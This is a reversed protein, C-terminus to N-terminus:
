NKRDGPCHVVARNKGSRKAEYLASDAIALLSEVNRGSCKFSTIGVSFSASIKHGHWTLDSQKLEELIRTLIEQGQDLRETMLIGAFEDGGYRAIVDTERFRSKMINAAQTLVYDGARHGMSDNVMKFDDLDLMFVLFDRGYRKALSVERELRTTLYRRNYLGTLPDTISLIELEEMLRKMDTIDRGIILYGPQGWKDKLPTSELLFARNAITVEQEPKDLSFKPGFIQPSHVDKIKVADPIHHVVAANFFLIEGEPSTVMVLDPSVDLLTQSLALKVLHSHGLDRFGWATLLVLLLSAIPNPDPMGYTIPIVYYVFSASMFLAVGLLFWRLSRRLRPNVQTKYFGYFIMLALLALLYTYLVAAVYMSGPKTLLWGVQTKEIGYQILHTEWIMGIFLLEPIALLHIWKPSYMPLFVALEFLTLVGLTGLTSYVKLYFFATDRSLATRYMLNALNGIGLFLLITIAFAIFRTARETLFLWLAYGLSVAVALIASVTFFIM